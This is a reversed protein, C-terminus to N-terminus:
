KLRFPESPPDNPNPPTQTKEQSADSDSDAAAPTPKTPAGAKKSAVRRKLPRYGHHDLASAMGFIHSGLPEIVHNFVIEEGPTLWVRHVRIRHQKADHRIVIARNRDEKKKDNM